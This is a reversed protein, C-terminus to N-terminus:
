GSALGMQKRRAAHGKYAEGFREIHEEDTLTPHGDLLWQVMAPEDRRFRELTRLAEQVAGPPVAIVQSTNARVDELDRMGVVFVM